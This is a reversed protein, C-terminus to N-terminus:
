LRMWPSSATRPMLTAGGGHPLDELAVADLGGGFTVAVGPGGEEAALCVGDEGGVEEFSPGQGPRSQVDEGGDFV